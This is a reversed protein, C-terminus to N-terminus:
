ATQLFLQNLLVPQLDYHGHKRHFSTALLCYMGDPYVVYNVQLRYVFVLSRMSDMADSFTELM